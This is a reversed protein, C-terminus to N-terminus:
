CTRPTASVCRKVASARRPSNSTSSSEEDSVEPTGSQDWYRDGRHSSGRMAGSNRSSRMWVVHARGFSEAAYDPFRDGLRQFLQDAEEFDYNFLLRYGEVELPLAKEGTDSPQGQALGPGLLILGALLTTRTTM